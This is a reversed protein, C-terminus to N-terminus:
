GDDSRMPTTRGADRRAASGDRRFAPGFAYKQFRRLKAPREALEPDALDKQSSARVADGPETDTPRPRGLDDARSVAEHRRRLM